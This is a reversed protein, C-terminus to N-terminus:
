GGIRRGGVYLFGGWVGCDPKPETEAFRACEVIFPCGSCLMAARIASPESRNPSGLWEDPYRRDLFDTYDEPNKHCKPRVGSWEITKNLVSLAELSAAVNRSGM